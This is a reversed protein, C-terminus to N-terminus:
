YASYEAWALEYGEYTYYAVAVKPNDVAIAATMAQAIGVHTSAFGEEAMQRKLVISVGEPNPIAGQEFTYVYYLTDEDGYIQVDLSSDLSGLIRDLQEKVLPDALFAAVTPYRDDPAPPQVGELPEFYNMIFQALQARTLTGGPSLRGGSGQMFGYQVAWSVGEKFWSAVQSGDPYLTLVSTAITFDNHPNSADQEAYRMFMTTVQERTVTQEPAFSTDSVGQVVGTAWAWQIADHAWHNQADAFPMGDGSSDPQGGMNYLVQVVQARSVTGDPDFLNQGKGQMYGGDLCYQIAPAGWHGGVDAMAARTPLACACLLFASLFVSLFKRM